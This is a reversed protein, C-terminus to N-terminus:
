KNAIIFEKVDSVNLVSSTKSRFDYMFIYNKTRGLYYTNSDSKLIRNSDKFIITFSKLNRRSTIIMSDNYSRWAVFTVFVISVYLLVRVRIFFISNLKDFFADLFFPAFFTISFVLWGYFFDIFKNTWLNTVWLILAVAIVIIFLARMVKKPGGPEDSLFRYKHDNRYVDRMMLSILVAGIINLVSFNALLPLFLLLADSLDIYETIVLGFHKYFVYSYSLGCIILLLYILSLSKITNELSSQSNDDSM